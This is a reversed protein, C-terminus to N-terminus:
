AKAWRARADELAREVGDLPLYGRTVRQTTAGDTLYVSPFGDAGMERARRFDEWAAAESSPSTFSELFRDSALSLSTFVDPYASRDTIDIADAYFAEQLRTLAPRAWTSDVARAAVVAISPTLTDYVWGERELGRPDFPQGTQAAVRSWAGRLYRRLTDDLPQAAPGPRLGGVVVEVSLGTREVLGELVPAFGWCWSCMPDAVYLLRPETSSAM